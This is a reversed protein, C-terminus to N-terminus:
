ASLKTLMIHELASFVTAANHGSTAERLLQYGRSSFNQGAWDVVARIRKEADTGLSQKIADIDPRQALEYKLLIPGLMQVAVPDIKYRKAWRVLARFLPHKSDLEFPLPLKFVYKAKSVM